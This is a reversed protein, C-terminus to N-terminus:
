FGVVVDFGSRDVRGELDIDVLLDFGDPVAVDLKAPAWLWVTGAGLRLAHEDKRKRGLNDFGFAFAHRYGVIGYARGNPFMLNDSQSRDTRDGWVTTLPSTGALWAVGARVQPSIENPGTLLPIFGTRIQLGASTFPTTQAARRDELTPYYTGGMWLELGGAPGYEDGFEFFLGFAVSGGFGKAHAVGSGGLSCTLIALVVIIRHKWCM